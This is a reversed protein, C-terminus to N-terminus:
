SLRKTNVAFSIRRLVRAPLTLVVWSMRIPLLLLGEVMQVVSTGNSEDLRSRTGLDALKRELAYLKNEYEAKLQADHKEFKRLAFKIQTIEADDRVPTDSGSQWPDSRTQGNPSSKREEFRAELDEVKRVLEEYQSPVVDILEEQLVESRHNLYGYAIRLPRLEAALVFVTINFNTILGNAPRAMSGRVYNLLGAGLLPGLLLGGFAQIEANRLKKDVAVQRDTMRERNATKYRRRSAKYYGWPVTVCNHLYVAVLGLLLLDTWHETHSGFFFSAFVPFLAIMTPAYQFHSAQDAADAAQVAGKAVGETSLKAAGAAIDTASGVKAKRRERSRDAM